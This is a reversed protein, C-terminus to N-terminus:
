FSVISLGVTVPYVEPGQGDEFLPVLDYSAFLTFNKYGIRAHADLTFKNTNFDGKRKIKREVGNEVFDQRHMTRFRWGGIVGAAVHFSNDNDDSTNIELLLPVKLASTRLKNKTYTLTSELGYTTDIVTVNGDNDTVDLKTKIDINNPLRYSDYSLGLGTIIGVYNEFLQIKYQLINFDVSISRSYDLDLWSNDGEQNISNDPNALMNVGLDIGSWHTLENKIDDSSDCVTDMEESEPNEFILITTKGLSVRTTDAANDDQAAMGLGFLAIAFTIIIKKM